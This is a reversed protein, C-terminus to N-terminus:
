FNHTLSGAANEQNSGRVIQGNSMRVAAGVHFHSYPAYANNMAAIAEAALERDEANLEDLSNYETYVTRIEKGTM